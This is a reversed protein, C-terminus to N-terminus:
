KSERPSAVLPKHAALPPLKRKFEVQLLWLSAVAQVATSATLLYWVQNSHFGLQQSLWLAPVAFVVFRVTASMLAPMTNGLAQFLFACTYVLGQAVLTWSMIQVFLMATGKSAGDVDFLRLLVEPQWLAAITTALLILSSLIATTRFVERVRAANGAGFNQGAIPAAALSVALGPLLLVQLVRYGIGFGAQVSAGQNRIVLYIVSISLFMLVLEAAAPSGVAFIRRWIKLRPFLLKRHIFIDPEARRFYGLMAIFGIVVSLTSALAAGEIGLAPIFGRGPILVVAFAADLVITFTFILMPGRVVGLGRLAAFLSTLPLLLALGPSAWRLFRSGADIVAVDSSLTAMYAPAFACLLMMVVVASIAALSLSQNLLVGIDATDKRGASFAVLAVTGVNLIQTAAGIAFGANGAATVGAVADAGLKSVFYLTIIQHAVQVLMTIVAPAAMTLIHLTISDRTLDKM